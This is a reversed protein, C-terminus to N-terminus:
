ANLDLIKQKFIGIKSQLEIKQNLLEDILEIGISDKTICVM